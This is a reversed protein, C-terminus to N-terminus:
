NNHRRNNNIERSDFQKRLGQWYCLPFFLSSKWCITRMKSESKEESYFLVIESYIVFYNGSFYYTRNLQLCIKREVKHKIYWLTGCFKLIGTYDGM